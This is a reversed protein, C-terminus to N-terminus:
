QAKVAISIEPRSGVAAPQVADFSFNEVRRRFKMREGRLGNGLICVASQPRGEVRVAKGTPVCIGRLIEGDAFIGVRPRNERIAIPLDPGARAVFSKKLELGIM